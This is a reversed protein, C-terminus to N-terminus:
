AGRAQVMAAYLETAARNAAVVADKVAKMEFTCPIPSKEGLREQAETMIALLAVSAAKATAQLSGIVTLAAPDGMHKSLTFSAVATMAVVRSCFGKTAKVLTAAQKAKATEQKAAETTARKLKKAEAATAQKAARKAEKEAEAATASVGAADAACERVRRKRRPPGQQDAVVHSCDSDSSDSSTSSQQTAKAALRKGNSKPKAKAKVPSDNMWRHVEEMVKEQTWRTTHCLIPVKYTKGVVPCDYCDECNAEILKTDYGNKGWVSLPLFDGGLRTEDSIILKKGVTSSVHKLIEAKSGSSGSRWFEADEADDLKPFDKHPWAGFHRQLGRYTNHCGKCVFGGNGHVHGTPVGDDTVSQLERKCKGCKRVKLAASPGDAQILAIGGPQTDATAIDCVTQTEGRNTGSVDATAALFEMSVADAVSTSMTYRVIPSLGSVTECLYLLCVCEPV